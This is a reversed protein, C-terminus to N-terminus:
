QFLGLFSKEFIDVRFLIVLTLNLAHSKPFVKLQNIKIVQTQDWDGIPSSFDM